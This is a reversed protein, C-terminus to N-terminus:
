DATVTGALGRQQFDNGAKGPQIISQNHHLLPDLNGVDFLLRLKRGLHRHKIRNCGAHTFHPLPQRLVVIQRRVQAAAIVVGQHIAHM